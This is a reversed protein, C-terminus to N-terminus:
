SEAPTCQHYIIMFQSILQLNNLWSLSYSVANTHFIFWTQIVDRRKRSGFVLWLLSRLTTHPQVALNPDCLLDLFVLNTHFFLDPLLPWPYKLRCMCRKGRKSIMTCLEYLSLRSYTAQLLFSCIFHSYCKLVVSVFHLVHDSDSFPSSFIFSNVFNMLEEGVLWEVGKKRGYFM